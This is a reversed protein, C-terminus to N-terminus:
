PSRETQRDILHQITIREFVEGMSETVETWIERTVCTKTRPCANKDAVCDVLTLPGELARYVDMLKITDPARALKYGGNKGRSVKTLGATKLAAMIHELYKASLFQNKALERVSVSESPYHRGLSVMVRTGYRVKTSLKM